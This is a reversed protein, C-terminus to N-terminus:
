RLDAPPPVRFGYRALTARAERGRLYRYFSRAVSGAGKLLVMRQRLPRHWHAPILAFTGARALAPARALSLPIIGGRTQGSAAFRAAQAANEGLVLHPRLASWLKAHLLAERAARGYPAHNPNAIAFRDISGNALARSLGPLGQAPQLPSGRPAYLVIRGLAYLTGQDATLGEGALKFVYTEDASLYLQYPAGQEIQRQFNGSSGFNLRVRRGGNSTFRAAIDTLAFQLDAAAAVVPPSAAAAATALLLAALASGLAAVLNGAFRM